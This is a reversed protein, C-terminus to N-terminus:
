GFERREESRRAIKEQTAIADEVENLDDCWEEGIDGGIVTWCTRPTVITLGAEAAREELADYRKQWEPGYDIKTVFQPRPDTM